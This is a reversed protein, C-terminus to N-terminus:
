QVTLGLRRNWCVRTVNSTRAPNEHCVAMCRADGQCYMLVGVTTWQRNEISESLLEPSEAGRGLIPYLPSLEIGFPVYMTSYM